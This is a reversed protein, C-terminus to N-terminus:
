WYFREAGSAAVDVSSNPSVIKVGIDIYHFGIPAAPQEGTGMRSKAAALIDEFGMGPRSLRAESCFETWKDFALPIKPCIRYHKGPVM